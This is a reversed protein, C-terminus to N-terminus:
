RKLRPDYFYKLCFLSFINFLHSTAKYYVLVVDVANYKKTLINTRM